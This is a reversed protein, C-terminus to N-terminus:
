RSGDGGACTFAVALARRGARGLPILSSRVADAERHGPPLGDRLAADVITLLSAATRALNVASGASGPPLPVTAVEAMRRAVEASEADPLTAREAAAVAEPLLEMMRLRESRIDGTPPPPSGDVVEAHWVTRGGGLVTPSLVATRRGPLGVVMAQGSQAGRHAQPPLGDPDGPVSLVCRAATTTPLAALTEGLPRRGGGAGPLLEAPTHCPDDTRL